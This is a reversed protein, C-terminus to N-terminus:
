ARRPGSSPPPPSSPTGSLFESNLWGVLMQDRASRANPDVKRSDFGRGDNNAAMRMAAAQFTPTGLAYTDRQKVVQGKAVTQPSGMVERIARGIGKGLRKFLGPNEAQPLPASHPVQARLPSTAM